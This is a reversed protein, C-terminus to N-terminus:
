NSDPEDDNNAIAVAGGVIAVTAILGIIIAPALESDKESATSARSLSLKSAPAAMVPTAAMTVVAAATLLKSFM